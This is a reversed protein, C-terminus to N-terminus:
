ESEKPENLGLNSEKSMKDLGLSGCMSDSPINFVGDAMEFGENKLFNEIKKYWDKAKEWGKNIQNEFYRMESYARIRLVIPHGYKNYSCLTIYATIYHSKGSTASYMSMYIPLDKQADAAFSFVDTKYLNQIQLEHM